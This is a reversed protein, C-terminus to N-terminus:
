GNSKEERPDVVVRRIHRIEVPQDPNGVLEQRTQQVMGFQRELLFQTMRPDPPFQAVYGEEPKELNKLKGYALTYAHERLKLGQMARGKEFEAAYHRQITDVSVGMVMAIEAQSVQLGAMREVTVQREPTVEHPPNGLSGKPAGRRDVTEPKLEESMLGM